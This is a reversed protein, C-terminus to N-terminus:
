DQKHTTTITAIHQNNMNTIKTINLTGNKTETGTPTINQTQISGIENKLRQFEEQIKISVEYLNGEVLRKHPNRKDTYTTTITTM